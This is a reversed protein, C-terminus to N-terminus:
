PIVPDYPAKAQKFTGQPIHVYTMGAKQALVFMLLMCCRTNRDKRTGSSTPSCQKHALLSHSTVPSLPTLSLCRNAAPPQLSLATLNHEGTSLPLDCGRLEFAFTAWAQEDVHATEMTIM